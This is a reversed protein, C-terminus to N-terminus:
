WRHRKGGRADALPNTVCRPAALLDASVAGSQLRSEGPTSSECYHRLRNRSPETPSWRWWPQLPRRWTSNPESNEQRRPVFRWIGSSSIAPALHPARDEDDAASYQVLEEPRQFKRTGPEDSRTAFPAPGDIIRAAIHRLGLTFKLSWIVCRLARAMTQPWPNATIHRMVICSASRASRM